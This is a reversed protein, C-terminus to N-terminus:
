ILTNKQFEKNMMRFAYPFSNAANYRLVEYNHKLVGEMDKYMAVKNKVKDLEYLTRIIEDMRKMDDMEDYSEDIWKSFTQYGLEKLERLSHKNGMIIFPHFCTMPKFIKESLFVTGQKDEFQAESIVSIWSDLHPKEHIRVVYYNPDHIENSEGYLVSPLTKSIEKVYVEDMSTGCFYRGGPEKIENMSVLGKELLKSYYLKSYFWIRHERPKKNLNNYLKINELNYIKYQYHEEFTKLPTNNRRMDISQCFVDAEFHSYPLAHILDKQPNKVLWMKYREEVISNGTVFFIQNPSIGYDECEKHFFDFLWDEHYGEFSSDVLLYARQDRMDKLYVESLFEFLSPISPDASYKGGAWMMPDNNVGVPIVYYKPKNEVSFDFSSFEYAHNFSRIFSMRSYLPSMTFRTSGAKNDVWNKIFNRPISIDEFVFNM